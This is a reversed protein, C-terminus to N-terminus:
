RLRRAEPYGVVTFDRDLKDIESFNVYISDDERRIEEITRPKYVYASPKELINTIVPLYSSVSSSKVLCETAFSVGAVLFLSYFLDLVVRPFESLCKVFHVVLAKIASLDVRKVISGGEVYFSCKIMCLCYCGYKAGLRFHIRVSSAQPFQGGKRDAFVRRFKGM